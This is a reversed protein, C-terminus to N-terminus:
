LNGGGTFAVGNGRSAGAGAGLPGGAASVAGLGGPPAAGPGGAGGTAALRAAEGSFQAFANRTDIGLQSLELLYDESNDVNSADLFRGLLDGAGQILKAWLAKLQPSAQPSGIVMMGQGTLAGYNQYAQLVMLARRMESDPNETRSLAALQFVYNGPIPEDPFLFPGVKAADAAGLVRSLKGGEDTEFQQDLIAIAEGVRSLEEQLLVDTGASMVNVQELLALTSTAPAPHGGSRTDRGLLPDSSGMWREAMTQMAVLLSLASQTYNPMPFPETADGPDVVLWKSPDIPQRNLKPNTTKGWLANRRTGADIEQNVATTQISQIMELRKAASRGGRFRFDVFPKYLLLYPAGVLRLIKGSAMHLHALFPVQSGGWTEEGEDEFHRGLVSWDCWIERVDHRRLDSADRDRFDLDDKVRAIRDASDEEVGEFARVAEVAGRDWAEDLKALDRLTTWAYEHRRVVVPADGIRCRTDWLIQERPVHEVLPGRAVTALARKLMAPQGLPTRGYFMPRVDRRYHIACVSRGAVYTELLQDVLVHKLSFDNGAAQWNVYRAMNRAIEANDENESRARWYTPDAATIQALSRSALADCVTGITPVVVNSAGVFPFSKEKTRPVAEYWKWWVALQRFLPEHERELDRVLERLDLGLREVDARDLRQILKEGPFILTM